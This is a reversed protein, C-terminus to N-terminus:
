RLVVYAKTGFPSVVAQWPETGSGVDVEAKKTIVPLFSDSGDKSYGDRPYDLAFVSVTGIDRNVMVAVRDDASLVIASGRSPGPLEGEDEEIAEDQSAAEKSSSCGAVYPLLAAGTLALSFWLFRINPRM